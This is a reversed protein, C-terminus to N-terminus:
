GGHDDVGHPRPLVDDALLREAAVEAPGAIVRWNTASNRLRQHVLADKRLHLFDTRGNGGAPLEEHIGLVPNVRGGHRFSGLNQTGSLVLDEEHLAILAVAARM